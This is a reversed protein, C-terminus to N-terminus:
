QAPAEPAGLRTCESPPEMTFSTNAVKWGDAGKVLSLSNIGCHTTKGGAMFRYPGWVHAMDGDIDVAQNFMREDLGTPSKLWNELHQAVPVFIIKPADPDMRDHITIMARADMHEALATKDDNRLAKFFLAVATNVEGLPTVHITDDGPEQAALPAAALAATIAFIAKM